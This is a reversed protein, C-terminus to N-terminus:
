YQSLDFETFKWNEVLKEIMKELVLEGQASSVIENLVKRYKMLGHNHLEGITIKKYKKAGM